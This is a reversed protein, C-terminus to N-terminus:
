CCVYLMACDLLSAIRWTELEVVVVAEASFTQCVRISVDVQGDHFLKQGRTVM